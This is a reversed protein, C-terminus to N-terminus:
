FLLRMLALASEARNMVTMRLADVLAQHEMFLCHILPHSDLKVTYSPGPEPVTQRQGPVLWVEFLAPAKRYCADPGPSLVPVM